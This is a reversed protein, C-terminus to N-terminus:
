PFLKILWVSVASAIADVTSSSFLMSKTTLAERRGDSNLPMSSPLTACLSIWRM